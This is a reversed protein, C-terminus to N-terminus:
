TNQTRPNEILSPPDVIQLPVVPQTNSLYSNPNRKLFPIIIKKNRRLFEKNLTTIGKIETKIYKKKDRHTKNQQESKYKSRSISINKQLKRRFRFGGNEM